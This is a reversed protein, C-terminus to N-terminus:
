HNREWRESAPITLTPLEKLQKWSHAIGFKTGGPTGAAALRAAVGHNAESLGDSLVAGGCM